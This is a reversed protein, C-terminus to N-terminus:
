STPKESQEPTVTFIYIPAYTAGGEYAKASWM